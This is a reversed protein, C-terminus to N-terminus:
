NQGGFDFLSKVWDDRIESKTFSLIGDFLNYIPTDPDLDGANRIGKSSDIAWIVDRVTLLYEDYHRIAHINSIIATKISNYTPKYSSGLKLVQYIAKKIDDTRDMGVSTKGDSISEFGTGKRRPWDDPRPTPQGCGNTMWFLPNKRKKNAYAIYASQWYKFYEEFFKDDKILLKSLAGYFPRDKEWNIELPVFLEPLNDSKPMYIGLDSKKLLPNDVLEHQTYVLEGDINETLRDCHMALPLTMMPASKVEAIIINNTEKDYVIADIPESAKTVEIKRGKNGFICELMQCLLESTVMGIQASEPKNAKTFKFQGNGICRPCANTFPYYMTPPNDCCYTWGRNAVSNYYEISALLDFAAAYRLGVIDSKSKEAIDVVQSILQVMETPISKARRLELIKEKM